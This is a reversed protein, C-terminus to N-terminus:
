PLHGERAGGDAAPEVVLGRRLVDAAESCEALADKLREAAADAPHPHRATEAGLGDVLGDAARGRRLMAEALRGVQVDGGCLLRALPGVDDLPEGVEVLEDELRPAAPRLTPQVHAVGEAPAVPPLPELLVGRGGGLVREGGQGHRRPPTPSHGGFGRGEAPTPHPLM